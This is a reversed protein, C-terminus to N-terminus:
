ELYREDALQLRMEILRLNFEGDSVKLMEPLPLSFGHEALLRHRPKIKGELSFSFYQPFRKLEALDGKMEDLFYEVKPQFNKEISFTLLGPSRVVMKVVEKYSFGLNQLYEAQACSYRRCPYLDNYPDSTLLQPHMDLIRGLASRQIGMSCLCKEVSKVPTSLLQDSILTKISPKPPISKSIKLTSYNKVSVSAPTPFPPTQILPFHTGSAM